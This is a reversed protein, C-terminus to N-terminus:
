TAWGHEMQQLWVDHFARIAEWGYLEADGMLETLAKIDPKQTDMIRIYGTVFLPISLAKYEAPKGDMTYISKHPSEVRHLVQTSTDAMHLKGLKILKRRWSAFITDEEKDFLTDMTYPALISLQRM